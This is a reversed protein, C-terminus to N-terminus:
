STCRTPPIRKRKVGPGDFEVVVTKRPRQQGLEFFVARLLNAVHARDACKRGLADLDGASPVLVLV